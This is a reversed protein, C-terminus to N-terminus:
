NRNIRACMDIKTLVHNKGVYSRTVVAKGTRLTEAIDVTHLWGDKFYEVCGAPTVKFLLRDNSRIEIAEGVAFVEMSGM